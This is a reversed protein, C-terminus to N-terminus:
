NNRPYADIFEQSYNATNKLNSDFERLNEAADTESVILQTLREYEASTEKLIKEVNNEYKVFNKAAGYRGFDNIALEFSMLQESNFDFNVALTIYFLEDFYLQSVIENTKVEYSLTLRAPFGSPGSGDDVYIDQYDKSPNFNENLCLNRVFGVFIYVDGRWHASTEDFETEDIGLLNLNSSQISQSNFYNEVGYDYVSTLAKAYDEKSIDNNKGCSAFFVSGTIFFCLAYIISLIRKKM